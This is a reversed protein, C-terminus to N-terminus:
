VGLFSQQEDDEVDLFSSVPTGTSGTSSAVASTVATSDRDNTPVGRIFQFDSFDEPAGFKEISDRLQQDEEATWTNAFENAIQAQREEETIGYDVGLLAANQKARAINEDVLGQAAAGLDLYRGYLQDRTNEGEVAQVWDGFIDTGSSDILGKYAEMTGERDSSLQAFEEGSVPRWAGTVGGVLDKHGKYNQKEDWVWGMDEGFQQQVQGLFDDGATDERLGMNQIRTWTEALQSTDTLSPNSINKYLGQQYIRNRELEQPRGVTEWILQDMMEQAQRQQSGQAFGYQASSVLSPNQAAWEAYGPVQNIDGYQLGAKQFNTGAEVENPSPGSNGNKGGGM